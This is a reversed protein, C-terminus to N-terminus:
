QTSTLSNSNRFIVEGDVVTFTYKPGGSGFRWSGEKVVEPSPLDEVAVEEVNSIV